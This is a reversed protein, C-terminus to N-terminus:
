HIEEHPYFRWSMYILLDYEKIYVMTIIYLWLLHAMVLNNWLDIQM